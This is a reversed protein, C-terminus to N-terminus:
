ELFSFAERHREIPDPRRAVDLEITIAISIADARRREHSMDIELSCAAAAEHFATLSQLGDAEIM